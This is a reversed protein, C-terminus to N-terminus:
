GLMLSWGKEVMLQLWTINDGADKRVWLDQLLVTTWKYTQLRNYSSLTAFWEVVRTRLGQDQESLEAGASLLPLAIFMFLPSDTKIQSINHLINLSRNRIYEESNVGMSRGCLRYLMLLGHLRYSENLARLPEGEASHEWTLLQQEIHEEFDLDRNGTDLLARCYRGLCCLHYFLETAHSILTCFKGRLSIVADYIEPTDLPMQKSPEVLFSCAMDWWIFGGIVLPRFPHDVPLDNQQLLRDLIQRAAMLHEEGYSDLSFDVWQSSLGLLFVALFSQVRVATSSMIDQRITRMAKGREELCEANPAYFCEFGVSMSQLAHVLAKSDSFEQVIPFSLPNNDTDLTMVQCVNELWYRLLRRNVSPM